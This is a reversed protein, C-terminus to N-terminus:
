GRLGARRGRRRARGVRRQRGVAHERLRRVGRARARGVLRSGARLGPVAGDGHGRGFLDGHAVADAETDFSGMYQGGYMFYGVNPGYYDGGRPSSCHLRLCPRGSAASSYVVYRLNRAGLALARRRLDEVEEARDGTVTASYEAM